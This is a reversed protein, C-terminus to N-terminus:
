APLTSEIMGPFGVESSSMGMGFSLSGILLSTGPIDVHCNSIAEIAISPCVLSVLLWQDLVFLKPGALLCKANDYFRTAALNVLLVSLTAKHAIHFSLRCNPHSRSNTSM